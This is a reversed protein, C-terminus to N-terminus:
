LLSIDAVSKLQNQLNMLLSLRNNRLDTDEAMVMVSDFFTDVPVKLEALHRLLADYNQQEQYEAIQRSLATVHQWLKKEASEQLLTENVETDPVTQQRLINDVRKCAASLAEAESRQEFESLAKLRRDFDYFCDDQVALVSHIREHSFGQATYHSILRELIFPKLEAFQSKSFDLNPDFALLASDLCHKLSIPFPLSVLLRVVALAHRRLKFPDKVGSPKQGIAFIGTLTDLRDALSLAKGLLSEPLDDKAFRPMYQENLAIAVAEAEKDHLAYYYGMLGQLEPFEGVMGTLLDCKSLEAVNQAEIRNLDLAEALSLILQRIRESKDYLSGLKAQFVVRKTEEIRSRLPIKRDQTYFFAADSLRARMVKENGAIVQSKKSSEINSITIFLPLLDDAKNKLAFCKQHEQMAAILAEPPVELFKAEFKAILAVPWEVISTVEDLLEPPIVAKADQENAINEIQRVIEERREVFDALVYANRLTEIYAQPKQIEILKNAHFRHGRTYRDSKIGFCHMPLCDEGWLALIWHVPRVFEDEGLGWRMPKAIPLSYLTQTVLDALLDVTKQGAMRQEYVMWEGKDTQLRDLQAVEVGCSRAFGELARSPNGQADFAQQVAPGRRQQHQEPQTEAMESIFIALRRPTAYVKMTKYDLQAKELVNKMADYLAESLQKVAASPLEECGMEFLFDKSM